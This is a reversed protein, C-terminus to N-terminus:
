QHAVRNAASRQMYAIFVDEVTATPQDLDTRLGALDGLAILRGEHMLGLRHCYAAEPLYHTSVIISTGQSALENILRWFRYRSLPDVGSTPEDLFVVSPQHLVSCALALRQRVAASLDQVSEHEFGALGTITSAWTVAAEANDRPLDYIRAFFWLNEAVTLDFYLSFKQSMYGINARVQRSQRDPDFGAVRAEGGSPSLLGCLLRILTTKGAGNPGLLGLVEGPKIELSVDDVAVFDGFRRTLGHATVAHATVSQSKVMRTSPAAASTTMTPTTKSSRQRIIVFADEIAPEISRLTGLSALQATLIEPLARDSALQFRIGESQWQTGVVESRSQLLNLADAPADTQVLFVSGEAENRLTKPTGGAIVHGEDLLVVQDCTEAEEMYSTSFVITTGESRFEKLMKWLESRSLPDVGLSPEDLLLLPPQHILNTCLALKKRMGGSLQGERRDVFRTLGAMELLRGKRQEFTRGTIGRVRASFDINEAVTLREYLTFGQAMYGIRSTIKAADQKTDLNMVRCQGDSPDLIAALIQLLTTKGAGDAGVLGCIENSAVALDIASLVQRRGFRRGVNTAKISLEHELM